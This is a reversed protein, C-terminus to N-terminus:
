EEYLIESGDPSWNWVTVDGDVIEVYNNEISNSRGTWAGANAHREGLDPTHTHGFLVFRDPFLDLMRTTITDHTGVGPGTGALPSPYEPMAEPSLVPSEALISQWEATADTGVSEGSVSSDLATITGPGLALYGVDEASALPERNEGQLTLEVGAADVSALRPVVVGENRASQLGALVTPSRDFQRSFQVSQFQNGSTDASISEILGDATGVLGSDTAAYGVERTTPGEGAPTDVRVEFGTASVNRVRAAAPTTDWLPRSDTDPTQVDALVVPTSGFPEEFTVTVWEDGATTRDVAVDTSSELVHQGREFVAYQVATTPQSHVGVGDDWSELRLGFRDARGAGEAALNRVQPRVPADGGAGAPSTVVVPDDYTEGLAVAEWGYRDPEVTTSGTEGVDVADSSSNLDKWLTELTSAMADEPLCLLTSVMNTHKPDADDGHNAVFQRGGSEFYFENGVEWPPDPADEGMGTGITYLRRDHNGAVLVVRTGADHLARLQSTVQNVELLTSSMGRWWFEFVDGALILVDPDISPVDETLFAQTDSVNSLRDALHTDSIMVYHNEESQDSAIQGPPDHGTM